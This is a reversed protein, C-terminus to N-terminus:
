RGRGGEQGFPREPQKVHCWGTWLSICAVRSISVFNLCWFQLPKGLVAGAKFIFCLTRCLRSFFVPCYIAAWVYIYRVGKQKFCFIWFDWFFFFFHEAAIRTTTSGTLLPDRRIQSEQVPFPKWTKRGMRYLLFGSEGDWHLSVLNYFKGNREDCSVCSTMYIASYLLLFTDVTSPHFVQFQQWKARVFGRKREASMNEVLEFEGKNSIIDDIVIQWWQMFGLFGDSDDDANPRCLWQLAQSIEHGRLESSDGRRCFAFARVCNLALKPMECNRLESVFGCCGMSGIVRLLICLAFTTSIYPAFIVFILLLRTWNQFTTSALASLRQCLLVDHTFILDGAELGFKSLFFSSSASNAKDHRQLLLLLWPKINNIIWWLLDLGYQAPRKEM